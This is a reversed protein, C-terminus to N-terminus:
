KRETSGCLYLFWGSQMDMLTRWIGYMLRGADNVYYHGRLQNCSSSWDARSQQLRFVEGESGKNIVPILLYHAEEGQLEKEGGFTNLVCKLLHALSM